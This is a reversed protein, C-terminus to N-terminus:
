CIIWGKHFLVLSYVSRGDSVLVSYWHHSFESEDSIEEKEDTRWEFVWRYIGVVTKRDTVIHDTNIVLPVFPFGVSLISIRQTVVRVSHGNPRAKKRINKAQQKKKLSKKRTGGEGV